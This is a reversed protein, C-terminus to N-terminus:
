AGVGAHGTGPSRGQSVDVHGMTVRIGRRATPHGCARTAVERVQVQPLVRRHGGIVGAAGGDGMPDAGELGEGEAAHGEELGIALRFIARRLPSSLHLSLSLRLSPFSPLPLAEPRRRSVLSVPRGAGECMLGRYARILAGVPSAQSAFAAPWTVIQLYIRLVRARRGNPPTDAPRAKQTPGVHEGFRALVRGKM